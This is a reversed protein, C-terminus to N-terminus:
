AASAAGRRAALRGLTGVQLLYLALFALALLYWHGYAFGEQSFRVPLNTAEVLAAVEVVALAFAVPRVWGPMKAPAVSAGRRRRGKLRLLFGLAVAGLVVGVILKGLVAAVAAGSVSLLLGAADAIVELGSLTREKAKALIRM